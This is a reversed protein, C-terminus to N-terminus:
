NDSRVGWNTPYYEGTEISLISDKHAGDSNNSQVSVFSNDKSGVAQTSVINFEVRRNKAYAEETHSTDYPEDKGKSTTMIRDSSIGMSVMAVKVAHARREGLALNYERTGREDCHGVLFVKMSPESNMLSVFSNVTELSENLISSKNLDFFVMYNEHSEHNYGEKFSFMEQEYSNNSYFDNYSSDNFSSQRCGAMLSMCFFLFVFRKFM